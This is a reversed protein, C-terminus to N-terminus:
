TPKFVGALKPYALKCEQPGMLLICSRQHSSVWGSSTSAAKSVGALSSDTSTINTGTLSHSHPAILGHQPAWHPQTFLRSHPACTPFSSSAFCSSSAKASSFMSWIRAPRLSFRWIPLRLPLVKEVAVKEVLSTKGLGQM